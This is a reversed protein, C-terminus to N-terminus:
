PPKRFSLRAEPTSHAASRKFEMIDAHIDARLPPSRRDANEGEARAARRGALSARPCERDTL